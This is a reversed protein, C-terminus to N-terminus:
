MRCNCVVGASHVCEYIASCIIGTNISSAVANLFEYYTSAFKDVIKSLNKIFNENGEEKSWNTKEDNALIPCSYNLVLYLLNLYVM